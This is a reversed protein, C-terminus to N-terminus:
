NELSKRLDFTMLTAESAKDAMRPDGVGVGGGSPLVFYNIQLHTVIPEAEKRVQFVAFAKVSQGPMLWNAADNPGNTDLIKGDSERYFDKEYLEFYDNGDAYQRVANMQLYPLRPGSGSDWTEEWVPLKTTGINQVTFRVILYAHISDGPETKPKGAADKHTYDAALEVADVRLNIQSAGSGLLYTTGMQLPQGKQPRVGPAIGGKAAAPKPAAKQAFAPLPFAALAALVVPVLSRVSRSNM